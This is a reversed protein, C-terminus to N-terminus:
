KKDPTPTSHGSRRAHAPIKDLKFRHLDQAHHLLNQTNVHADAMNHKSVAIEKVNHTGSPEEEDTEVM